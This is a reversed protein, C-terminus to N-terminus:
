YKEFAIWELMRDDDKNAPLRGYVKACGNVKIEGDKFSNLSWYIDVDYAIGCLSNFKSNDIELESGSAKLNDEAMYGVYREERKEGWVTLRINQAFVTGQNNSRIRAARCYLFDTNM